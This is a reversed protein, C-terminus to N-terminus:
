PRNPVKGIMQQVREASSLGSGDVRWFIDCQRAFEGTAAEPSGQHQKWLGEAGVRVDRLARKVQNNAISTQPRYVAELDRYEAHCADVVRVAWQYSARYDLRKADVLDQANEEALYSFDESTILRWFRDWWEVTVVIFERYHGACVLYCQVVRM